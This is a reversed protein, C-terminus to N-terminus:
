AEEIDEVPFLDPPDRRSGPGGKKNLPEGNANRIAGIRLAADVPLLTVRQRVGGARTYGADGQMSKKVTRLNRVWNAMGGADIAAPNSSPPTNAITPKRRNALSTTARAM